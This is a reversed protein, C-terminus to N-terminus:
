SDEFQVNQLHLFPKLEEVGFDALIRGQWDLVPTAAQGSKQQMERFAAPDDTVNKERYSIGEEMLFAVVEACWPCGSKVYLIPLNENM